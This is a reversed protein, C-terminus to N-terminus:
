SQNNECSSLLLHHLQQHLPSGRDVGLALVPECREVHCGLLVVVGDDLEEEALPRVLCEGSLYMKM